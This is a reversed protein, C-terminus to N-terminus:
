HFTLLTEHSLTLRSMLYAQEFKTIKVTQKQAGKSFWRWFRAMAGKWSRRGTHLIECSKVVTRHDAQSKLSNLLTYIIILLFSLFAIPAESSPGWYFRKVLCTVSTQQIKWCFCLKGDTSIVYLSKALAYMKLIRHIMSWLHKVGM